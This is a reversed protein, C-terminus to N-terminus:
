AGVQEGVIADYFHFAPDRDHVTHADLRLLHGRINEMLRRQFAVSIRKFYYAAMNEHPIKRDQEVKRAVAKIFAVTRPHMYGSSEFILPQFGLGNATCAAGYKNIKKNYAQQAHRGAKAATDRTAVGSKLRAKRAGKLTSTV